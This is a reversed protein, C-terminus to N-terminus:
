KKKGVNDVVLTTAFLLMVSILVIGDSWEFTQNIVDITTKFASLATFILTSLKIILMSRQAKKESYCEIIRQRAKITILTKNIYDTVKVSDIIRKDIQKNIEPIIEADVNNLKNLMYDLANEFVTLEYNNYNKRKHKKNQNNPIGKEINYILNYCNYWQDLYYIIRREFLDYPYDNYKAWAQRSYEFGMEDSCKQKYTYAFMQVAEQNISNSDSEISNAEYYNILKSINKRFNDDNKYSVFDYICHLYSLGIHNGFRPEANSTMKRMRYDILNAENAYQKMVKYCLNKFSEILAVVDKWEKSDVGEKLILQTTAERKIFVNEAIKDNQEVEYKKGDSITIMVTGSSMFYANVVNSLAYQRLCHFFGKDKIFLIDKLVSSKKIQEELLGFFIQLNKKDKVNNDKPLFFQYGLDFNTLFEMKYVVSSM